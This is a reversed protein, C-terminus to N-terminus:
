ILYLNGRDMPVFNYFNSLDDAIHSPWKDSDPDGSLGGWELVLEWFGIKIPKGRDSTLFRSLKLTEQGPISVSVWGCSLAPVITQINLQQPAHLVLLKDTFKIDIPSNEELHVITYCVSDFTAKQTSVVTGILGGLELRDGKLIGTFYGKIQLQKTGIKIAGLSILKKERHAGVNLKLRVRYGELNAATAIWGKAPTGAIAPDPDIVATPTFTYKIDPDTKSHLTFQNPAPITDIYLCSQIPEVSCFGECVDLHVTDGVKYCHNQETQLTKKDALLRDINTSMGAFLRATYSIEEGPVIVLDKEPGSIVGKTDTINQALSSSVGIHSRVDSCESGGTACGATGCGGSRKGGCTSCAM